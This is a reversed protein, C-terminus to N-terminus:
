RPPSRGGAATVVVSSGMEDIDMWPQVPLICVDLVDAHRQELERARTLLGCLNGEFHTSDAPSM